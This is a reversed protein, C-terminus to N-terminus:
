AVRSYRRSVEAYISAAALLKLGDWWQLGLFGAEFATRWGHFVTLYLQAIGLLFVVALGAAMAFLAHALRPIRRLIPTDHILFGILFSAAPFALLYGGTPGMLHLFSGSGNAFVPLGAAGATLYALQSACGKRAGLFAGSLLVFFTQLTIPVPWTPISVQAGVATLITFASVWLAASLAKRRSIALASDITQSRAENMM